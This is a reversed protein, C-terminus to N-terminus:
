FWFSANAGELKVFAANLGLAQSPLTLLSAGAPLSSGGMVALALHRQLGAGAGPGVTM